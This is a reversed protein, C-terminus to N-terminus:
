FVLSQGLVDHKGCFMLWCSILHFFLTTLVFQWLWWLLLSYKHKTFALQRSSMVERTRSCSQSSLVGVTEVENILFWLIFPEQCNAWISSGPSPRCRSDGHKSDLWVGISDAWIHWGSCSWPLSLFIHFVTKFYMFSMFIITVTSFLYRGKSGWFQLSVLERLHHAVCIM